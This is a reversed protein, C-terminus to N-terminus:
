EGEGAATKLRAIFVRERYQVLVGLLMILTSPVSLILGIAPGSGQANTTVLLIACIAAYAVICFDIQPWSMRWVRLPLRTRMTPAARFAQLALVVLAGFFPFTAVPKLGDAFANGWTSYFPLFAAILTLLGGVLVIVDGRTRLIRLPASSM